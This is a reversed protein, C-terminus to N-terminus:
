PLNGSLVGFQYLMASGVGPAAFVAPITPSTQNEFTLPVKVLLKLRSSNVSVGLAVILYVVFPSAGVDPEVAYEPGILM